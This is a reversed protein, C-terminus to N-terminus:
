FFHFNINEHYKVEFYVSLNERDMHPKQFPM